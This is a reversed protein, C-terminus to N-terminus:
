PASLFSEVEDRDLVRTRGNNWGKVTAPMRPFVRHDWLVYLTGVSKGPSPRCIRGRVQGFFQRNAGIPTMLVGGRVAPMDIGQGTAAFTGACVPLDGSKLRAKDEAYRVRNDDGGLLLGCRVGAAFLERDAISRAHEVRHSFALVSGDRAAREILRVILANRETDHTMEELLKNWDREGSEANRYWDAEFDTPVLVVDVPTIAGEDELVDREIEYVIRGLQDYVLFEKKDKRTEDASFGVRYRAPFVDLITQFTAAAALHCEDVIVCGFQAAVEQLPFSKSWLTQQLAVTLRPGIRLNRGGRLVGVERDRLQLKEKVEDRWQELLNGDRMVVLTPVAVTQAFQLACVTKGSGTPARVIGQEARLLAEVAADQYWRPTFALEPWSSTEIRTRRDLFRVAYGHDRATERLRETAGRPLTLHEAPTGVDELRWTAIHSATGWTKFGMNRKKHFDPNHHNCSQRLAQALKKPIGPPLRLRSDITVTLAEV